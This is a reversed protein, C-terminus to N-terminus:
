FFFIANCRRMYLFLFSDNRIHLSIDTRNAITIVIIIAIAITNIDYQITSKVNTNHKRTNYITNYM